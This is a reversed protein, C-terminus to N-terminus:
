RLVHELDVSDVLSASCGSRRWALAVKLSAGPASCSGVTAGAGAGVNGEAPRNTGATECARYGAQADPRIRGDGVGLDSIIAAPVIPVHTVGVDYRIRREELYRMVGTAVDLGFCHRRVAAGRAGERRPQVAYAALWGMKLNAESVCVMIDM